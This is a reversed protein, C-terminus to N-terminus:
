RVVLKGEMGASKHAPIPCYYEYTGRKLTVTVRSTGGAGVVKGDKDVGKGEVAIGHPIGASKPNKMVLTIRGARATLRTRTFKLKGHPDATLNLTKARAAAQAPQDRTALLLAAVAAALGLAILLGRRASSSLTM